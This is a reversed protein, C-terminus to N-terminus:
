PTPAFLGVVFSGAAAAAASKSAEGADWSTDEGDVWRDWLVEATYAVVAAVASAAAAALATGLGEGEVNELEDYTLLKAQLLVPFRPPAPTAAFAPLSAMGMMAIVVVIATLRMSHKM